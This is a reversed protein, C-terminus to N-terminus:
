AGDGPRHPTPPPTRMSDDLGRDIEEQVVRWIPKIIMRMNRMIAPVDMVSPVRLGRHEIGGGIQRIEVGLRAFHAALRPETLVFLTDIGSRAALAVAGLYLGIPIYPFRPRDGLGFDEEHIPLESRAEGKRRRYTARVALRSVEAIRERPLRTPDIIRRDLTHACAHEFPLPASPDDPRALVLRTCGVLQEPDSNTTLLCHLSHADYEDTEQRNAREPEFHLEECYVEHRIRYVRERAADDMAPAIRFYKRFGHGLNFREFLLM